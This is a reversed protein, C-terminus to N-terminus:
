SPLSPKHLREELSRLYTQPDRRFRLQRRRAEQRQDLEQRLERWAVVDLLRLDEAKVEQTRTAVAALLRVQGRVVLGPAAAKRGSARREHYRVSGFCQELENNTRPVEATEYCRFLGMWYSKTVKCFHPIVWALEGLAEQERLMEGLLRRYERRVLLVDRGDANELVCAARHVWAYGQEIPGWLTATQELGKTVL